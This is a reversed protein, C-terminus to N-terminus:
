RRGAHPVNGQTDCVRPVASSGGYKTWLTTGRSGIGRHARGVARRPATAKPTGHTEYTAGRLTARNSPTGMEPAWGSRPRVRTTHVFGETRHQVVPMGDRARDRRKEGDRLDPRTHRNANAANPGHPGRRHAPPGEGGHSPCVLPHPPPDPPSVYPSAGVPRRFPPPLPLLSTPSLAAGGRRAGTGHPIRGSQALGLPTTAGEGAAFVLSSVVKVRRVDELLVRSPM